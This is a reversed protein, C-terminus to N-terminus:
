MLGVLFVLSSRIRQKRGMRIEFIAKLPILFLIIDIGLGVSTIPIEFHTVRAAMKSGFHEALTEGKRATMFYFQVVAM